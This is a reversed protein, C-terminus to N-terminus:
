ATPKTHRARSHHAIHSGAICLSHKFSSFQRSNEIFNQTTRAFSHILSRALLFSLTFGNELFIYECFRMFQAFSQQTWSHAFVKRKKKKEQRSCLFPQLSACCHCGFCCFHRSSSFPVTPALSHALTLFCLSNSSYTSCNCVFRIYTYRTRVVNWTRHVYHRRTTSICHCPPRTEHIYRCRM